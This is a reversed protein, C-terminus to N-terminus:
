LWSKLELARAALLALVGALAAAYAFGAWDRRAITETITIPLNELRNVEAVARELAQPDDAEFARYPAGMRKFFRDLFLEPVTDAHAAGVAGDDVLRPSRPSRIYIWYLSVRLDRMLRAVEDRVDPDLHDGGDSVLLVIRSGSYPRERFWDLARLLALGIDTEALGRGVAVAAIAAQVVEQKHTFDHVPIPLTSFTLTAFRDERREAM